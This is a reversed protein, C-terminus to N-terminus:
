PLRGSHSGSEARERGKKQRRRYDNLVQDLFKVIFQQDKKPLNRMSEARQEVVSRPGRSVPESIDVGLLERIDLDLIEALAALLSSPLDGPPSEYYSYTRTPIGLREAVQRQSLQAAKRATSIRRGIDNKRASM